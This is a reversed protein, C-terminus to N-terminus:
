PFSADRKRGITELVDQFGRKWLEEAHQRRLKETMRETRGLRLAEAFLRKTQEDHTRNVRDTERALTALRKAMADIFLSQLAENENLAEVLSQQDSKLEAREEDIRALKWEALRHLKEQVALIREIKKLRRNLKGL